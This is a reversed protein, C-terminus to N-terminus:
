PKGSARKVMTLLQAALMQTMLAEMESVDIAGTAKWAADASDLARYYPGRGAAGAIQEPITMTGPLRYGLKACLVLYSAARSTRGNGGRFPHIWNLRWMVYFALHIPTRTTEGNVYSCMESVLDPVDRAPPPRHGTGGIVIPGARYTGACVYIGDIALRQLEVVVAPTLHLGGRALADDTLRLVADFQLLGNRAELRAKEAQDRYLQPGAPRRPRRAV